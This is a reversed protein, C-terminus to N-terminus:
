SKEQTHEELDHIPNSISGNSKEHLWILLGRPKPSKRNELHREVIYDIGLIVISAVLIRLPTVNVESKRLMVKLTDM